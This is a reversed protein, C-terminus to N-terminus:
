LSVGLYDSGTGVAFASDRYPHLSAEYHTRSFDNMESYRGFAPPVVDEKGSCRDQEEPRFCVYVPPAPLLTDQPSFRDRKLLTPQQGLAPIM